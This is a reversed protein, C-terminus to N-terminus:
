YALRSKFLSPSATSGANANLFAFVIIFNCHAIFSQTTNTPRSGSRVKIQAFILLYLYSNWGFKKLIRQDSDTKWACEEFRKNAAGM